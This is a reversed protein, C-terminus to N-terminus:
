SVDGAIAPRDTPRRALSALVARERRRHARQGIVAFVLTLSSLAGSVQPHDLLRMLCALLACLLAANDWTIM